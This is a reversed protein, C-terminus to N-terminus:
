VGCHINILVPFLRVQTGWDGIVLITCRHCDLTCHPTSRHPAPSARALSTWNFLSDLNLPALCLVGEDLEGEPTLGGTLVVCCPSGWATNVAM